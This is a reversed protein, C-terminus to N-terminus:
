QESLWEFSVKFLSVPLNTLFWSPCYIEQLNEIYHESANTKSVLLMWSFSPHSVLLVVFVYGLLCDLWLVSHPNRNDCFNVLFTGHCSSIIAMSLRHLNKNREMLSLCITWTDLTWVNYENILAPLIKWATELYVVQESSTWAGLKPAKFEDWTDVVMPDPDM